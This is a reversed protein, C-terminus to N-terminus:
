DRVKSTATQERKDAELQQLLNELRERTLVDLGGGALIRRCREIRSELEGRQDSM